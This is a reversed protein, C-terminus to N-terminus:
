SSAPRRWLVQWSAASLILTLALMAIPTLAPVESSSSLTLEAGDAYHGAFEGTPCGSGNSVNEIASVVVDVYTTGAPLMLEVTVEEWTSADADSILDSSASALPTPTLPENDNFAEPAGSHAIVSAVFLTDTSATRRNFRVSLVAQDQGPGVNELQHMDSGIGGAPCTWFTGDFRLMATGEYPTVGNEASVKSTFDAGWTGVGAPFTLGPAAAEFGGNELASASM